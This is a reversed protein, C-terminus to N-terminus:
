RRYLRRRKGRENKGIARQNGERRKDERMQGKSVGEVM